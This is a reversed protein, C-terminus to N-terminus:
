AITTYSFPKASMDQVNQRLADGKKTIQTIQQMIIYTLPTNRSPPPPPAGGGGGSHRCFESRSIVYVNM